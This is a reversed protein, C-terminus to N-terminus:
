GVVLLTATPIYGEIIHVKLQGAGTGIIPDLKPPAEDEDFETDKRM